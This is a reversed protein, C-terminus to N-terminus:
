LNATTKLKVNSKVINIQVMELHTFFFDVAGHAQIVHGLSKSLKTHFGPNGVM